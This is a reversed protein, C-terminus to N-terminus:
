KNMYNIAQELIEKSEGVILDHSLQWMIWNHHHVFEEDGVVTRGITIGNKKKSNEPIRESAVKEGNTYEPHELRLLFNKNIPFVAITGYLALGPEAPPPFDVNFLTVPSDSTIFSLGTNAKVLEWKMRMFYPSLENAMQLYDFRIPDLVIVESYKLAERGEQTKAIENTIAIKGFTKAMDAQRPVRLRQVQLYDIIAKMDCGGLLEPTETLKRLAALGKPELEAGLYKELINKDVGEPVWDQSYYKNRVMVQDPKQRRYRNHNKSYINLFGGDDIFGNLYAKAVFHHRKPNLSM